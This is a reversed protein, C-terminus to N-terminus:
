PSKERKVSVEGAPARGAGARAGLGNMPESGVPVPPPVAGPIWILLPLKEVVPLKRKSVPAAALKM